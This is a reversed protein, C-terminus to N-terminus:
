SPAFLIYICLFYILSHHSWKASEASPSPIWNYLHVKMHLHSARLTLPFVSPSSRMVPEFIGKFPLIFTLSRQQLTLLSHPWDLTSTTQGHLMAVSRCVAEVSYGCKWSHLILVVFTKINQNNVHFKSHQFGPKDVWPRSVPQHSISAANSWYAAANENASGKEERFQTM